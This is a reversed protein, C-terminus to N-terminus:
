ATGKLEQVLLRRAYEHAEEMLKEMSRRTMKHKAREAVEDLYEATTLCRVAQALKHERKSVEWAPRATAARRLRHARERLVKADRHLTWAPRVDVRKFGDLWRM